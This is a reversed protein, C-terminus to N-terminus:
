KKARVPVNPGTRSDASAMAASVGHRAVRDRLRALPRDRIGLAELHAVTNFLYESCPGLHGSAGAIAAAVDAEPLRGAYRENARNITFAIARAPGAPTRV